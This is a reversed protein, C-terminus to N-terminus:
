EHAFSCIVQVICVRRFLCQSSSSPLANASAPSAELVVSAYGPCGVSPSSELPVLFLPDIAVPDIWNAFGVM